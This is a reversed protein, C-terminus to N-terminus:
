RYTGPKGTARPEEGAEIGAPLQEGKAPVQQWRLRSAIFFAAALGAFGIVVTLIGDWEPMPRLWALLLVAAGSIGFIMMLFIDLSKDRM